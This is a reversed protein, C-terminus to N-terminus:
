YKIKFLMNNYIIDLLILNLNYKNINLKKKIINLINKYFDKNIKKNFKKYILNIVKDIRNKLLINNNPISIKKIKFKINKKLNYLFKLEKKEIFLIAKGIKDFRGTRGIRHIYSNYDIPLDYNIILDVLKIDLGRSAIDTAILISIKGNRFDNIIKERLNQNMDGNLPSCIYGYKEIFNSLKVTFIKTRVFIILANFKEIELFKMLINLKFKYSYILCYYQYINEPLINKYNDLSLNIEKPFKMFRYIIKKIKESMTASFLVTQHKFKINLIIKKVDNIFGMKFMEDAEDLVLFKIKLLNLTKRKLHDLLRGPTAIIINPKKKLGLFQINYKQGGYLSLIKINKIYKSFLIFSNTIQIVLERVPALVLVQLNNNNLLIKNLLPLVFSATKGSGTKAIGLIDHGELFLPICIKQIKTPKIYGIEKIVKLLENKLKFKNFYFNKM